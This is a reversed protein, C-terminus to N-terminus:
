YKLVWESEEIIKDPFKRKLVKNVLKNQESISMNSNDIILDYIELNETEIGYYKKYRNKNEKDRKITEKKAKKFDKNERKSIRTAREKISATLYIRIDSYSGLVWSPLRGDVACSKKLAQNLTKRDVELDIEKDAKKALELHSINREEAISRFMDGASFNEIDLKQAIHRSLTGKGSGSPGDVTIIIEANKTRQNKQFEEIYSQMPKQQEQKKVTKKRAM